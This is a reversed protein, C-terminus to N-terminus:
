KKGKLYDECVFCVGLTLVYVGLIVLAIRGAFVGVLLSLLGLGCTVLNVRQLIM